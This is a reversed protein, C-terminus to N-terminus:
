QKRWNLQASRGNLFAGTADLRGDQLTGTLNASSITYGDARRTQMRITVAGSPAVDGWIFMTLSPDRAPWQGLIKGQSVAAQARFCLAPVNPGEGWCVPGAYMGDIASAGAAGTAAAAGGALGAAPSTAAVATGAPAGGGGMATTPAPQSSGASGTASGGRQGSARAADNLRQVEAARRAETDRRRAELAAQEVAFTQEVQARIEAKEAALREKRREAAAGDQYNSYAWYGGGAILVIVVAAAAWKIIPGVHRRSTPLRGHDETEAISFTRVPQPINKFSREGLSRFSLSLKNRIQDYVSGSICIGGPEATAQLRAAVNVGDGLLDGGQVMVDGLNVGIRFKVQRPEPLQDNRTRLATQIETACRVAEVASPFEALIADGATNFIRGRHMAVLSEFVERHGRFVRLTQEEDEAMLRSYGAVDASLITALKRELLTSPEDPM